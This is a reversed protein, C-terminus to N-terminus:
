HEIKNRISSTKLSQVKEQLQEVVKEYSRQFKIILSIIIKRFISEIMISSIYQRASSRIANLIIRIKVNIKNVKKKKMLYDIRKKKYEILQSSSLESIRQDSKVIQRFQTVVSMEESSPSNVAANITITVNYETSSSMHGASASKSREDSNM